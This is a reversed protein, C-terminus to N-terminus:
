QALRKGKRDDGPGRFPPGGESVYPCVKCLPELKFLVEQEAGHITAMEEEPEGVLIIIEFNKELFRQEDLTPWEPEELPCQVEGRLLIGRKDRDPHLEWAKGDIEIM